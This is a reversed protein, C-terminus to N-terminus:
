TNKIIATNSHSTVRKLELKFSKEEIPSAMQSLEGKLGIPHFTKLNYYAVEVERGNEAKQKLIYHSWGSEQKEGM